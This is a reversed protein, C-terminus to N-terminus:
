RCMRNMPLVMTNKRLNILEMGWSTQSLYSDLGETNIIGYSRSLRGETESTVPGVGGGNGSRSDLTMMHCALLAVAQNRMMESGCYNNGTQSEAVEIYDDIAPNAYLIASRFQIIQKPTKM